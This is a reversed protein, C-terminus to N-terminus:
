RETPTGGARISVQGCVSCAPPGEARSSHALGRAADEYAFGVFPRKTSTNVLLRQAPSGAPPRKM